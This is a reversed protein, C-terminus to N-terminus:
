RLHMLRLKMVQNLQRCRPPALQPMLGKSKLLPQKGSLQDLSILTVLEKGLKEYDHAITTLSPRSVESISTNDFGVISIDKPVSIKKERLTELAGMAM